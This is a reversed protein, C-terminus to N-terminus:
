LEVRIKRFDPGIDRLFFFGGASALSHSLTGLLSSVCKEGFGPHALSKIAAQIGGSCFCLSQPLRSWQRRYVASRFRRGKGEAFRFEIAINRGEVHGLERLGARFAEVRDARASAPGIDLYGIRAVKGPQQARAALPWAAVAGGLWTDGAIEAIM